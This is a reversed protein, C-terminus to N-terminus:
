AARSPLSARFLEAAGQVGDLAHAGRPQFGIAPGAALDRVPRSVLIEGLRALPTMAAAQTVAPGRPGDELLECEGAAVGARV